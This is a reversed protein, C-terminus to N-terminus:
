LSQWNNIQQAIWHLEQPSLQLGKALDVKKGRDFQLRVCNKTSYVQQLGQFSHVKRTPDTDGLCAETKLLQHDFQLMLSRFPPLERWLQVLMLILVIAPIFLYDQPFSGAKVAAITLNYFGLGLLLFFCGGAMKATFQWMSQNLAFIQITLQSNETEVRIRSSYPYTLRADEQDTGPKPLGAALTELATRATTFRKSIMPQVLKTLWRCFAPPLSLRNELPSAAGVSFQIGAETQPLDMPAVGTALHILTAGLSYLDSAPITQGGYQEIPAYGYTGVVTFTRGDRSASDQVAGFDILYLQQDDGFILNSPKIDRHLVLPSLEHLYILIELISRAITEIEELSFHKGEQLLQKLSKGPIYTQVLGFSLGEELTFSDIYNPIRQHNLQRLTQGEREFLKLEEWRSEEGVALLKLVVLQPPHTSNDLSLWTHRGANKALRQQLTYRYHIVTGPQLQELKM